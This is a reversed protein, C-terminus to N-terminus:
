RIHRAAQAESRVEDQEAPPRSEQRTRQRCPFNLNDRRISDNVEDDMHSRPYQHYFLPHTNNGRVKNISDVPRRANHPHLCDSQKVETSLRM